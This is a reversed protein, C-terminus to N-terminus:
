SSMAFRQQMQALLEGHGAVYLKEQENLYRLADDLQTAAAIKAEATTRLLFDQENEQTDDQRDLAALHETLASPNLLLRRLSMKRAESFQSQFMMNKRMERSPDIEEPILLYYRQALAQGLAVNGSHRALLPSLLLGLLVPSLWLLQQPSFYILAILPLVGILLYLWTQKLAAAWSITDGSRSQTKWGSDRGLFIDLLHHTQILMLMPAYLTSVLLEVIFGKSLAWAGGFLRREDRNFLVRCYGIIKPLLLLLLAAFFLLRMLRNDFTPWNPFLQYALPFYQPQTFLAQATIMMGVTMMLMWVPSMLYGLIGIVFHARNAFSLGKTRLVGLHQLNGQAWRRERGALDDLTPPLGEYSGRLDADMRVQWGARRLLAAEVFDHSMIHGGIPRRGKLEPLGCCAAFATTRILANHGWYNGDNGQWANM